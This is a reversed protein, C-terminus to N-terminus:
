KSDRLSDLWKDASDYLSLLSATKADFVILCMTRPNGHSVFGYPGRVHQKVALMDRPTKNVTNFPIYWHPRKLDKTFAKIGPWALHLNDNSRKDQWWRAWAETWTCDKQEWQDFAEWFIENKLTSKKAM